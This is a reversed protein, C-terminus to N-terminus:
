LLQTEIGDTGSEGLTVKPFNIIKGSRLEHICYLDYSGRLTARLILDLLTPPTGLAIGPHETFM